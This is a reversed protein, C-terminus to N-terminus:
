KNLSKGFEFLNEPNRIIGEDMPYTLELLSRFPIVKDGIM